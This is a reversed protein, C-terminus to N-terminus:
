QMQTLFQKADNLSLANPPENGGKDSKNKNCLLYDNLDGLFDEMTYMSKVNDDFLVEYAEDLGLLRDGWIGRLRCEEKANLLPCVRKYYEDVTAEIKNRIAERPDGGTSSPREERFLSTQARRCAYSYVFDPNFPGGANEGASTKRHDSAVRDLRGVEVQEFVLSLIPYLFSPEHYSVLFYVAENSPFNGSDGGGCYYWFAAHVNELLTAAGLYPRCPKATREEVPPSAIMFDLTGKDVVLLISRPGLPDDKERLIGVIGNRQSLDSKCWHIRENRNAKKLLEITEGQVDLNFVRVSKSLKGQLIPFLDVTLTSTGCGVDVITCKDFKAGERSRADVGKAGFLSRKIKPVLLENETLWEFSAM